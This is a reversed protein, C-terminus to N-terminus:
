MNMNFIDFYPLNNNSKFMWAGPDHFIKSM